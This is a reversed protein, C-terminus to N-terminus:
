SFNELGCRGPNVFAQRLSGRCGHAANGLCLMGSTGLVWGPGAPPCLLWLHCLCTEGAGAEPLISPVSIFSHSSPTCPTIFVAMCSSPCGSLQGDEWGETLPQAARGAVPLSHPITNLSFPIVWPRTNGAGGREGCVGARDQAPCITQVFLERPLSDPFRELNGSACCCGGGEWSASVASGAGPAKAPCPPFPCPGLRPSLGWAPLQLQHCPPLLHGKGLAPHSHQCGPSAPGKCLPSARAPHGPVANSTVFSSHLGLPVLQPFEARPQGM